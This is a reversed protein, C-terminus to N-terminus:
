RQANMFLNWILGTRYNELMVMEPGQDIALYRKTTWQYQQSHMM